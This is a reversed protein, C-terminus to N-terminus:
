YNKLVLLHETNGPNLKDNRDSFYMEYLDEGTIIECNKYGIETALKLLEQPRFLSKFPTGAERTRNMVFKMTEQETKSLLEISQLYSMIFISSNFKSFILKLLEVNSEKSLYMSLGLSSILTPKSFDFPTEILKEIWNNGDLNIPIYYLNNLEELGISQLRNKKWIITSEDDVEFIKIAKEKNKYRHGFTDLGAGLIIYQDIEDTSPNLLYDEVYKSRAIISSRMIKCFEPEMDPRNQWDPDQVIKEGLPDNFVLPQDDIKCHLARWLSVRVATHNPKCDSIKM